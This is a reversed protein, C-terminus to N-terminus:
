QKRDDGTGSSRLSTFRVQRIEPHNAGLKLSNGNPQDIGSELEIYPGDRVCIASSVRWETDDGVETMSIDSADAGNPDEFTRLSLAMRSCM